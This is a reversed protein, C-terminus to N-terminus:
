QKRMIEGCREAGMTKGKEGTVREGQERGVGQERSEWRREEVIWESAVAYELCEVTANNVRSPRNPPFNILAVLEPSSSSAGKSQEWWSLCFGVSDLPIQALVANFM